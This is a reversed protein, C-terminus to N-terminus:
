ARQSAVCAQAIVVFGIMPVLVREGSPDELLPLDRM